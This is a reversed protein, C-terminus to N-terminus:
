YPAAFQQDHNSRGPFLSHMKLVAWLWQTPRLRVLFVTSVEWRSTPFRESPCSELMLSDRVAKLKNTKAASPM